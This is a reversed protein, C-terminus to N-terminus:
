ELPKRGGKFRKNWNKEIFERSKQTGPSLDALVYYIISALKYINRECVMHTYQEYSDKDKEAVDYWEDRIKIDQALTNKLWSHMNEIIEIKDTKLEISETNRALNSCKAHYIREEETEGEESWFPAKVYNNVTHLYYGLDFLIEGYSRNGNRIDSRLGEFKGFLFNAAIEIDNEKFERGTAGAKTFGLKDKSLRAALGPTNGSHLFWYQYETESIGECLPDLYDKCMLYQPWPLIRIAEKLFNTQISSPWCFLFSESIFIISIALIIIRKKKISHYIM